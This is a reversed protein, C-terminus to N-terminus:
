PDAHGPHKGGRRKGMASVVMGGSMGGIMEYNPYVRILTLDGIGYLQSQANKQLGSAFSVLLIVASTGIIVGIATLVIRGKRRGLNDLILRILDFFKM